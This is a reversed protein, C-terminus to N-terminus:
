VCTVELTNTEKNRRYYCLEDLDLVNKMKIFDEPVVTSLIAEATQKNPDNTTFNFKSGCNCSKKPSTSLEVPILPSLKPVAEVLKPNGKVLM